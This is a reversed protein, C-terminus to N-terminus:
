KVKRTRKKKPAQVPEPPKEEAAKKAAFEAKWKAIDERFALVPGHKIFDHDPHDPPPGLIGWCWKRAEATLEYRSPTAERKDYRTLDYVAAMMLSKGHKESLAQAAQWFASQDIGAYGILRATETYAADFYLREWLQRTKAM